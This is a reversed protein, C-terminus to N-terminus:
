RKEKTVYTYDQSIFSDYVISLPQYGFSTGTIDANKLVVTHYLLFVTLLFELIYIKSKWKNISLLKHIKKDHNNKNESGEILLSTLWSLKRREHTSTTKQNWICKFENIIMLYFTDKMNWSNSSELFNHTLNLEFNRLQSSASYPWCTLDTTYFLTTLFHSIRTTLPSM